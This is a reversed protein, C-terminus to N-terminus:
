SWSGWVTSPSNWGSHGFKTCVFVPLPELATLAQGMFGSDSCQEIM